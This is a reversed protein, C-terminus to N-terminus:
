RNLPGRARTQVLPTRKLGRHNLKAGIEAAPDYGVAVPQGRASVGVLPEAGHSNALLAVAITLGVIAVAAVALLARLQVYNSRPVVAPDSPIVHIIVEDRPQRLSSPRTAEVSAAIPSVEVPAGAARSAKTAAKTKTGLV